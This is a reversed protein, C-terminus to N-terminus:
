RCGPLPVGDLLREVLTAFGGLDASPFIIDALDRLSAPANAPAAALDGVRLLDLDNLHDGACVVLDPRCVLTALYRELATGKSVGPALVDLFGEGALTVTARKGLRNELRAALKRVKVPDGFFSVRFVPIDIRPDNLSM